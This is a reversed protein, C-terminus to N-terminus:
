NASVLAVAADLARAKISSGSGFWVNWKSDGYSTRHFDVYETVGNYAAWLTGRVGELDNGQGEGFLRTAGQRDRRVQALAKQLRKQDMNKSPDPFVATMYAQLKAEGMQIGLMTQFRQGLEDFHRQIANLVVDAADDLRVKMDRTHAIRIAPGRELAENLTNKCVVRVPTFKVQVSGTGDHTNSLLLFRAITDGKTIQFDDRLRAM